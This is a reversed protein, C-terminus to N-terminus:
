IRASASASPAPGTGANLFQDDTCFQQQVTVGTLGVADMMAVDVNKCLWQLWGDVNSANELVTIYYATMWTRLIYKAKVVTIPDTVSCLARVVQTGNLQEKNLSQTYSSAQTCAAILDSSTKLGAALFFAFMTSETNKANAVAATNVPPPSDFPQPSMQKYSSRKCVAEKVVNGIVPFYDLLDLRLNDCVTDFRATSNFSNLLHIIFLNSQAMM